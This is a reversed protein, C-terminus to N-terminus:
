TLFESYNVGPIGLPTSDHPYKETSVATENGVASDEEKAAAECHLLMSDVDSQDILAAESVEINGLEELHKRIEESTNVKNDSKPPEAYFPLRGRQFDYLVIRAAISVDPIKGKKFKGFKTAVQDLFNEETFDKDIGYRSALTERKIIKLVREIYNEPDNIREVRIAGKLVKDADDGEECPTVGPCDILHIRKTLCVYQWVRTEGPIPATKCSRDGKLTNIVSSKGVNPYGIFGVSFHKRDKFLQSYQRLLQILTNKGFPKTVSAHFAVTPAERNLHKIWAATVWSPVLDCKNMLLVLVKGTKHKKIYNELRMCRTGIPDRADIVQVVVDSCDIVKYLEAWIRKSTGKKFIVDSKEEVEDNLNILSTDKERDYSRSNVDQVMEELTSVNLKPRKRTSKKGFTEELSQVTLLNANDEAVVDKLLSMPLKSRKIVCTRPDNDVNELENRFNALQEQTLVRTNGFWRRDPNIRVPELAQAKMKAFNPKEKYMNLRKITSNTRYQGEKLGKPPKRHPNTIATSAKFAPFPQAKSRNMIRNKKARKM